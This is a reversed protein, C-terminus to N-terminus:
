KEADFLFVGVVDNSKIKNEDLTKFRKIRRTNVEFYTEHDALESFDKNLKTELKVFLDTNKCPLCYNIIGQFGVSVFNIAMIKEGPEISTITNISQNDQINLKSKYIKKKIYYFEKIM